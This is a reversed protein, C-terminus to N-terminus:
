KDIKPILRKRVEMFFPHSPAFSLSSSARYFFLSRVPSMRIKHSTNDLLKVASNISTLFYFLSSGLLKLVYNMSTLFYVYSQATNQRM